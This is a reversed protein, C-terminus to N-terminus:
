IMLPLMIVLLSKEEFSCLVSIYQSRNQDRNRAIKTHIRFKQSLGLRWYHECVVSAAMINESTLANTKLAFNTCFNACFQTFGRDFIASQDLKSM